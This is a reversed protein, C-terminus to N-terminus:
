EKNFNYSIHIYMVANGHVTIFVSSLLVITPRRWSYVYRPPYTCTNKLQICVKTSLYPHEKATYVNQHSSEDIKIYTDICMYYQVYSGSDIPWMKSETRLILSKYLGMARGETRKFYPNSYFLFFFFFYSFLKQSNCIGYLIELCFYSEIM